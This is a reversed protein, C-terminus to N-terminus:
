IAQERRVLLQELAEMSLKSPDITHIDYGESIKKKEADYIRAIVVPVDFIQKAIQSIMINANDDDTVAVVIEATAIGSKKLVDIDTADAEISFGSYDLSLKRFADSRNDIIVANYGRLSYLSAINAGLRGCGAIIIYKKNKKKSKVPM